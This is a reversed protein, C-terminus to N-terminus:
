TFIPAAHKRAFLLVGRAGNHESFRVHVERCGEAAVMDLLRTVSYPNMQMVPAGAPKGRLLNIAQRGGPIAMRTWYLLKSLLRERGGTYPVQIMAIGNPALRRALSRIITEGRVLPIHQLVIYSHIFDFEGDLASLNDDSQVLRVATAGAADCNRRAEALMSPSIDMGTVDRCRAALPILLRGVGCGFDLAREPAFSPDLHEHIISFMTDIHDVGSQFFRAREAGSPRGHFEPATLVAFYPDTSGFREWDRDSDNILAM